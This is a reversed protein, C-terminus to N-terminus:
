HARRRDLEALVARVCQDILATDAKGEKEECCALLDIASREAPATPGPPDDDDVKMQLVIERIELPM